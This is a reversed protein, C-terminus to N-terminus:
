IKTKSWFCSIRSNSYDIMVKSTNLSSVSLIGDVNVDTTANLDSLSRTKFTINKILTHRINVDHNEIRLNTDLNKSEVFNTESHLVSIGAGTDFVLRKARDDVKLTVVAMNGYEIDFPIHSINYDEVDIGLSKIGDPIIALEKTEYDILVKYDKFIDSGIIGALPKKIVEEVQSLDLAWANLNHKSINGFRINDIPLEKSQQDGKATWVLFDGNKVKQNLIVHPTGTDFIYFGEDDDMFAKILILGDVMEFRIVSLIDPTSHIDNPDKDASYLDLNM